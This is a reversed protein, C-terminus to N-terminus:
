RGCQHVGQRTSETPQTLGQASSFQRHIRHYVSITEEAARKWSFNGARRSAAYRWRDQTEPCNVLAAIAGAMGAVDLPTFTQAGSGAVEPLSGTNAAVVPCGCAMAELIPLGFGEYLSPMIFASAHRFLAALDCADIYGLRQLNLDPWRKEADLARIGDPPGYVVTQFEAGEKQQALALATLAGELNKTRWNRASAAVVYPRRVNYKEQLRQCDDQRKQASFWDAPALPITTLREAEVGLTRRVDTATNDSDVIIHHARRAAVRYGTKIMWQKAWPYIRFYFPILDHMTVVVPCPLGVPVIFFPSHFVDLKNQRARRRLEFQEAISYKRANVPVTTVRAGDLGPLPNRVDSYVVLEFDGEAAAMARLLGDVYAGVGSDNYWRADFGVRM